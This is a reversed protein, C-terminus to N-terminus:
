KQRAAAGAAASHPREPKGKRIPDVSCRPRASYGDPLFDEHRALRAPHHNDPRARCPQRQGIQQRPAADAHRHELRMVVEGAGKAALRELLAADIGEPLHPKALLEVADRVDLYLAYFEV